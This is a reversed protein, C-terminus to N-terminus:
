TTYNKLFEEFKMPTLNKLKYHAVYTNYNKKAFASIENTEKIDNFTTKTMRFSVKNLTTKNKLPLTVLFCGFIWIFVGILRNLIYNIVYIM